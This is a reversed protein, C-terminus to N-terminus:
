TAPHRVRYEDEAAVGTGSTLGLVRDLGARMAVADDDAVARRFLDLIQSASM